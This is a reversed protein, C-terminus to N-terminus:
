GVTEFFRRTDYPTRKKLMTYVSRGLKKQSLRCRRPKPLVAVLRQHCVQARANGRLFLCAAESFAWKLHVSGIKTNKAKM